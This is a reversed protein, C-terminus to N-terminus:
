LQPTLHETIEQKALLAPPQPHRHLPLPACELETENPALHNCLRAQWTNQLLRWRVLGGIAMMTRNPHDKAIYEELSKEWLYVSTNDFIIYHGNPLKNIAFQHWTENLKPLIGKPYLSVLYPAGGHRYAWQATFEAFTNCPGNWEANQLEEPRCRFTAFFDCIGKADRHKCHKELFQMLDEVTTIQSFIQEINEQPQVADKTPSLAAVSSHNFRTPQPIPATADITDWGLMGGIALLINASINLTSSRSRHERRTHTTPSSECYEISM